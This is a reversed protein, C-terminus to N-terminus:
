GPRPSLGDLAGHDLRHARLSSPRTWASDGDRFFADLAQGPRRGARRRRAPRGAPGPRRRRRRGAGDAQPPGAGGAAGPAGPGPGRGRESGSGAGPGPRRRRAAPRAPRAAGSGAGVAEALSLAHVPLALVPAGSGPAPVIRSTMIVRSEGGHSTLAAMLPEWRPDRWGGGPDAPNGPQGAGAARRQRGDGACGPCSRRGAGAVTGIHGAMAFGFEASSSTWRTRGLEALAGAASMTAPPAQWFAAAAFSDQHRYALELACATKGAGAMGHLLVATQGSGPALAAGARAM